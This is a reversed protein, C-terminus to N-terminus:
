APTSNFVIYTTLVTGRHYVSLIGSDGYYHNLGVSIYCGLLKGNMLETLMLKSVPVYNVGNTSTHVTFEGPTNVPPGSQNHYCRTVLNYNPENSVRRMQVRISTINNYIANMQSVFEDRYHFFMTREADISYNANSATSPNIWTNTLESYYLRSKPQVDTRLITEESNRVTGGTTIKCAKYPSLRGSLNRVWARQYYTRWPVIVEPFTHSYNGGEPRQIVRWVVGNTVMGDFVNSPPVSYNQGNIGSSIVLTDWNGTPITVTATIQGSTNTQSTVLSVVPTSPTASWIEDWAGAVKHYITGTSLWGSVGRQFPLMSKWTGDSKHWVM